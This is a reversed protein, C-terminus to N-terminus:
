PVPNSGVTEQRLQDGAGDAENEDNQTDDYRQIDDAGARQQAGHQAAGTDDADSQSKGHAVRDLIVDRREHEAQTLWKACVVVDQDVILFAPHDAKGAPGGHQHRQVAIVKAYGVPLDKTRYDQVVGAIRLAPEFEVEADIRVIIGTSRPLKPAVVSCDRGNTRSLGGASARIM